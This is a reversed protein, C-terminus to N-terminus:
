FYLVVAVFRIHNQLGKMCVDELAPIEYMVCLQLLGPILNNNVNNLEGNHVM